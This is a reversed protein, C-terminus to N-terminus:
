LDYARGHVDRVHANDVLLRHHHVHQPVGPVQLALALPASAETGAAAVALDEAVSTEQRGAQVTANLPSQPLVRAARATQGRAHVIDGETDLHSGDIANLPTHAIVGERNGAARTQSLHLQRAFQAVVTTQRTAASCSPAAVTVLFPHCHHWVLSM